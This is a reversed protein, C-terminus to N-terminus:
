ILLVQYLLHIRLPLLGDSADPGHRGSCRVMTGAVAIASDALWAQGLPQGLWSIPAMRQVSVFVCRAGRCDDHGSHGLVCADQDGHGDAQSLDTHCHGGGLDETAHPCGMDDCAHAHHWCCGLVSHALLSLATLSSFVPSM